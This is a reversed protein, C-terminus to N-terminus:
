FTVCGEDGVGQNRVTKMKIKAKEDGAPDAAIVM